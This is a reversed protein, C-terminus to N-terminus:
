CRPTPHGRISLSTTRGPRTRAPRMGTRPLPRQLRRLHGDPASRFSVGYSDAVWVGNVGSSSAVGDTFGTGIARRVLTVRWNENVASGEFGDIHGSLMATAGFEATLSVDATFRGSAIDQGDGAANTTKLVSMGVASGSYDASTDTLSDGTANM